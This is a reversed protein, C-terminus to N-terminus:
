YHRPLEKAYIRIAHGSTEVREIRFRSNPLDSLIPDAGNIGDAHSLFFQDGVRVEGAAARVEFNLERRRPLTPLMRVRVPEEVSLCPMSGDSRRLISISRKHIEMRAYVRSDIGVVPREVAFGREHEGLFADLRALDAMSIASPCDDDDESYVLAFGDEQDCRISVFVSELSSGPLEEADYERLTNLHTRISITEEQSFEIREASSLFKAALLTCSGLIRALEEWRIREIRLTGGRTELDGLPRLTVIDQNM